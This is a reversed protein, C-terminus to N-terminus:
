VQDKPLLSEKVDKWGDHQRPLVDYHTHKTLATWYSSWADQLLEDSMSLLKSCYATCDIATEYSADVFGQRVLEFVAHLLATQLETSDSDRALRSDIVKPFLAFQPMRDSRTGVLLLMSKVSAASGNAFVALAISALDANCSVQTSGRAIQSYNREFELPNDSFCWDRMWVARQTVFHTWHYSLNSDILKTSTTLLLMLRNRQSDMWYGRRDAPTNSDMWENHWSLSFFRNIDVEDDLTGADYRAAKRDEIFRRVSPALKYNENVAWAIEDELVMELHARMAAPVQESLRIISAAWDPAEGDQQEKDCIKLVWQLFTSYIIVGDSLHEPKPCDQRYHDFFTPFWDELAKSLLERGYIASFNHLSWGIATALGVDEKCRLDAPLTQELELHLFPDRTQEKHSQAYAAFESVALLQALGDKGGSHLSREIFGRLGLSPASPDTSSGAAIAVFNRAAFGLQTRLHDDVALMYLENPLRGSRFAGDSEYLYLSRVLAESRTDDLGLARYANPDLFVLGPAIMVLYALRLKALAAPLWDLSHASTVSRELLTIHTELCDLDDGFLVRAALRKQQGSVAHDRDFALLPAAMVLWDTDTLKAYAHHKRNNRSVQALSHQDFTGFPDGNRSTLFLGRRFNLVRVFEEDSTSRMDIDLLLEVLTLHMSRATIVLTSSQSMLQLLPNERDWRLFPSLQRYSQVVNGVPRLQNTGLLDDLFVLSRPRGKSLAFAAGQLADLLEIEVTPAIKLSDSGSTWYDDPSLQLNGVFDAFVKVAGWTKGARPHGDVIVVTRGGNPAIAETLGELKLPAVFADEFLQRSESANPHHGGAEFFDRLFVKSADNM